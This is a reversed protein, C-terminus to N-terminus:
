PHSEDSHLTGSPTLLVGATRALIRTSGQRDQFSAVKFLKPASAPWHDFESQLLLVHKAERTAPYALHEPTPLQRVQRGIAFALEPPWDHMTHLTWNPLLWQGIARGWAGQGHRYNWESVYYGWHAVKLAVALLVMAMVARRSGGTEIARWGLVLAAIGPVLVAIGVARYYPFVLLWLYSGYMLTILWITLLGSLLALFIRRGGRTLTGSWAAELGAGAMVLMGALAPVAAARSLGPIVTGAIMSAAAVQGWGLLLAKATPSLSERVPRNLFLIACPSIPLGMALVRAALWWDPQLTLPLTLAAAWAETSAACLSWISWLTGAIAPPVLLRFSLSSGTRGVVIVALLVLVVPPWGAALVAVATWIGATWDSGRHLLRDLAAVTALGGLFDLGTAASHDVVGLCGFWALAFWLGARRGLSDALRRTLLTGIALAALASPWLVAESAIQRGGAVMAALKVAAVHLPWLDPAWFGFVQGLPGLPEGAALGARADDPGLDLNGAGVLVFGIAMLALM